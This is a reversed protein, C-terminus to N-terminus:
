RRGGCGPCCGAIQPSMQQPYQRIQKCTQKCSAGGCSKPHAPSFKCRPSNCPVQEDPMPQAHGCKTYVYCVQRIYCM